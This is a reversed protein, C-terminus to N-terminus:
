RATLKAMYYEDVFQGDVFLSNHRTGEVIFGMKEYLALARQNHTMVTLELRYINQEIAWKELAEFLKTGIGQGVFDNLVGIVIYVSHRNRLAQGGIAVLYGVLVDENVAVFITSNDQMSLIRKRQEDISVRREDAEYLMFASEREVKKQLSIFNSDDEQTIQRIEM